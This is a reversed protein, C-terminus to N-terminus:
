RITVSLLRQDGLQQWFLKGDRRIISVCDRGGGMLGFFSVGPKSLCFFRGVKILDGSWSAGDQASADYFENSLFYFIPKADMFANDVKLSVINIDPELEYPKSGHARILEGLAVTQVDIGYPWTAAIIFGGYVRLISPASLPSLLVRADGARVLRWTGQPFHAVSLVLGFVYTICALTAARKIM